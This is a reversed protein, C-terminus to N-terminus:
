AAGLRKPGRRAWNSRSMRANSLRVAGSPRNQSCSLLMLTL